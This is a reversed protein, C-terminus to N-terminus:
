EVLGLGKAQDTADPANAARVLRQWKTIAATEGPFLTEKNWGARERLDPHDSLSILMVDVTTMGSGDPNAVLWYQAPDTNIDETGGWDM